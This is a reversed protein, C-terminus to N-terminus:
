IPMTTATASEANRINPNGDLLAFFCYAGVGASVRVAAGSGAAGGGASAGGAVGLTLVGTAVAGAACGDVAGGATAAASGGGRTMGADGGGTAAPAVVVATAASFGAGAGGTSGFVLGCAGAATTCVPVRATLEGVVTSM